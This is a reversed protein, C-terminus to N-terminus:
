SALKTRMLIAPVDSVVRTQHGKGDRDEHVHVRGPGFRRAEGSSATVEVEGQVIVGIWSYPTPHWDRFFGPPNQIFDVDGGPMKPARMPVDGLDDTGGGGADFPIERDEFRSEGDPDAVCVSYKM